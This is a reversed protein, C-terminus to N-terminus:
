AAQYESKSKPDSLKIIDTHLVSVFSYIALKSSLGIHIREFLDGVLRSHKHLGARIM